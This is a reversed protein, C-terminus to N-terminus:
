LGRGSLVMGTYLITGQNGVAWVDNPASGWVANLPYVTDGRSSFYDSFFTTWAVGDWIGAFGRNSSEGVVFISSKNFGFIGYKVGSSAPFPNWKQGDWKIIGSGGGPLDVYGVAWVNNEDIGWVDRLVNGPQGLTDIQWVIDHSTATLTKAIVTKSTDELKGTSSYGVIKYDYSTGQELSDTEGDICSTDAGTLTFSGIAQSSRMLDYMMGYGPTDISSRNWSLKIRYLDTWEVKLTITNKITEDPPPPFPPETTNCSIIGILLFSIYVMVTKM